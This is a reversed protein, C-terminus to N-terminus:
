AFTFGDRCDSAVEDKYTMCNPAERGTAPSQMLPREVSSKPLTACGTSLTLILLALSLARM